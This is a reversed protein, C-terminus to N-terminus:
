IHGKALFFLKELYAKNKQYYDRLYESQKPTNYYDATPHQYRWLVDDVFCNSGISLGLTNLKDRKQIELFINPNYSFVRVYSCCNINDIYIGLIGMNCLNMLLLDRRNIMFVEAGIFNSTKTFESRNLPLFEGRNTTIGNKDFKVIYPAQFIDNPDGLDIYTPKM